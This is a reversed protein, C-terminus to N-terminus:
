RDDNVWKTKAIEITKEIDKDWNDDVGSYGEKDIDERRRSTRLLRDISKFSRKGSAIAEELASKIDEQDYADDLWTSLTDQEIPSLTRHLRKEFYAYLETLLGSREADHLNQKEKAVDLQFLRYLKDKLPELSTVLGSGVMEFALFDAKVLEVLIADLEKVKFNMKLSLLDATVLSNGQRTLHETMLIVSLQKESIGLKKYNELLIYQFDIAERPAQSSIATKM